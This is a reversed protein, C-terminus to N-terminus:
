PSGEAARLEQLAAEIAAMRGISAESRVTEITAINDSSNHDPEVDETARMPILQLRGMQESTLNSAGLHLKALERLRQPENLYSWEAKLVHIAQRDREISRNLAEYEAELDQVDYKIAFVFVAMLTGVLLGLITASRIM